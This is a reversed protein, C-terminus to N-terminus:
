IRCLRSENNLPPLDICPSQSISEGIKPNTEISGIDVFTVDEPHDEPQLETGEPLVPKDADVESMYFPEKGNDKSM